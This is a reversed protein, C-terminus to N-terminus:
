MNLWYYSWQAQDVSQLQAILISPFFYYFLMELAVQRMNIM